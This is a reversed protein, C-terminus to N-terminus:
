QGFGPIQLIDFGILQLFVFSFILFILGVIAAILQDRGQQLQEPKGQSTMLQYGARIILLLAIGGSASLLIGFITKVLGAPDTQILGLGSDFTTCQGNQWTSCPPSLLPPTPSIDQVKCAVGTIHQDFAKFGPDDINPGQMCLEDGCDYQYYENTYNGEPDVPGSADSTCVIMNGQCSCHTNNKCQVGNTANINNQCVDEQHPCSGADSSGLNGKTDYCKWGVNTSGPTNPHDCVCDQECGIGAISQNASNSEQYSLGVGV